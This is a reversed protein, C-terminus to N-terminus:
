LRLWASGITIYWATEEPGRAIDIGAALGLKRALLYRFGTGYNYAREADDLEDLEGSARGTGTFAVMQWRDTIKWRPEVEVLALYNGLYRYAPIGRLKIYSLGYYPADSGVAHGELRLGFVLKRNLEWYRHFSLDLNPYDFDGGLVDSFYSVAADGYTGRNPTFLNDRSDYTLIASVGANNSEEDEEGTDLDIQPTTKTSAFAYRGGFFIQKKGLQFKVQQTIGGAELNFPIPDENLESNRGIGYFDLDLSGYALLGLYRTRGKNWVGSHGLAAGWSGNEAYAGGGFSMSPSIFQKEKSTAVPETKPSHFYALAVVAGYGVAPENFPIVLPLFGSTGKESGATIDFKGDKPDKFRGWFSKKSGEKREEGAETSENEDQGDPGRDGTDETEQAVSKHPDREESAELSTSAVTLLLVLTISFKSSRSM